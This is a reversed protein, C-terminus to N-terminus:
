WFQLCPGECGGSRFTGLHLRTLGAGVVCVGDAGATLRWMASLRAIAVGRSFPHRFWFPSAIVWSAFGVERAWRARLCQSRVELAWRGQGFRTALNTWCIPLILPLEFCSWHPRSDEESHSVKRVPYYSGLGDAPNGKNNRARSATPNAIASPPQQTVKLVHKPLCM